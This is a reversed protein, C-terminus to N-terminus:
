AKIDGIRVISYAIAGPLGTLLVIVIWLGSGTKRRQLDRYVWITLLIHVVFCIIMMPGLLGRLQQCMCCSEKPHMGPHMMEIEEAERQIEADRLRERAEKLEMAQHEMKMQMEHMKQKMQQEMPQQARRRRPAAQAPDRRSGGGYVEEAFIYAGLLLSILFGLFISRKM